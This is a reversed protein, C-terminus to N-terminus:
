KEKRKKEKKKEKKKKANREKEKASTKANKKKSYKCALFFSGVVNCTGLAFLEQTVNIRYRKLAVRYLSFFLSYINKGKKRKGKKRKAKGAFKKSIALSEM